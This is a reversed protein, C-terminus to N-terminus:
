ALICPKSSSFAEPRGGAVILGSLNQHAYNGTIGVDGFYPREHFRAGVFEISGHQSQGGEGRPPVGARFFAKLSICEPPFFASTASFEMRTLRLPAPM